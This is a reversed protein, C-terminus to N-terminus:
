LMQYQAKQFVEVKMYRYIYMFTKELDSRICTISVILILQNKNKKPPPPHPYM